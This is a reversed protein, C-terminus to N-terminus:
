EVVADLDSQEGEIVTIFLTNPLCIITEGVKSIKGMNECIHDDCSSDKVYAYGNEIVLTNSGYYTNLVYENDESLSYTGTVKNNQVVQVLGTPRNINKFILVFCLAAILLVTCLIIDNRHLVLLKKLANKQM